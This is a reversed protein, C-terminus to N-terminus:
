VRPTPPPSPPFHCPPSPSPPPWAHPTPACTAWSAIFPQGDGLQRVTVHPVCNDEEFLNPCDWRVTVDLVGGNEQADKESLRARQLLEAITWRTRAGRPDETSLEHQGLHPFSVASTIGVSLRDFGHLLEESAGGGVMAATAGSFPDAPQATTGGANCWTHRTCHQHDCLGLALPPAHECDSDSACPEDPITCNGLQQDRTTIWRTPLFLAGGEEVRVLSAVDQPVTVGAKTSYTTGDLAVGALGYSKEVGEYDRELVVRVGIVYVLVLCICLCYLIGLKRDLLIVGKQTSYSSALSMCAGM